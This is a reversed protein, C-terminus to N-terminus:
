LITLMEQIQYKVTVRDEFHITMHDGIQVQRNKKHEVASKKFDQRIKSYNELSYLDSHTLM